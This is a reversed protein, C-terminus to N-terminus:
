NENGFQKKNLIFRERKFNMNIFIFGDLAEFQRLTRM